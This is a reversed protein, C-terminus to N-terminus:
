IVAAPLEIGRPWSNAGQGFQDLRDIATNLHKDIATDPAPGIHELRECEPCARDQQAARDKPAKSDVALGTHAANEFQQVGLKILRHGQAAASIDTLDRTVQDGSPSLTLPRIAGGAAIKIPM